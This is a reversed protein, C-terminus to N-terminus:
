NEEYKILIKSKSKDFDMLIIENYFVENEKYLDYENSKFYKKVKNVGIIKDKDFFLCVM